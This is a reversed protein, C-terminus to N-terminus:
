KYHYTTTITNNVVVIGIIITVAVAVDSITNTIFCCHHYQHKHSCHHHHHRLHYRHYCCCYGYNFCIIMMVMETMSIIYLSLFVCLDLESRTSTSLSCFSIWEREREKWIESAVVLLAAGSGRPSVPKREGKIYNIEKEAHTVHFSSM